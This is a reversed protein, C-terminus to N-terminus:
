LHLLIIELIPPNPLLLFGGVEKYSSNTMILSPQLAQLTGVLSPLHCLILSSFYEHQFVIDNKNEPFSLILVVSPPYRPAGVGVIVEYSLLLM